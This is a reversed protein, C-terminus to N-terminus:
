RHTLGKEVRYRFRISSIFSPVNRIASHNQKVNVSKTSSVSVFDLSPHAKMNKTNNFKPTFKKPM